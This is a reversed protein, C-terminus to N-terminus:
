NSRAVIDALRLRHDRGTGHTGLNVTVRRLYLHIDHDWTVGIGGHMQVCDQVIEAAHDALYSKAASVMEGADARAAQVSRVAARVTARSSDLALRMDAFRHKLAQYSALPRGFSYRDFAWETTFAFVHEVAGVTEAMSLANAIQIQREVADASTGGGAPPAVLATHREVRVDEFRVTAYRRVLDVGQLPTVHVGPASAPIVVQVLGGGEGRATVLHHTAQAGAEVPSKVGNIVLTDGEARAATSLGAVGWPRGPEDLCWSAVAAGALLADLLGDLLGAGASAGLAAAVVNCPVFPGPAVVRGLDRAVIALDILGEGSVSGGGRDEPVLPSTWGLGAAREWWERGFGDPTEALRRVETLPMTEELFRRATDQWLTRDPSLALEM